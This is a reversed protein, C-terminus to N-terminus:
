DKGSVSRARRAAALCALLRPVGQRRERPLGKGCRARPPAAVPGGCPLSVPAGKSVSHGACARMAPMATEMDGLSSALRALCLQVLPLGPAIRALRHMIRLAQPTRGRPGAQRRPPSGVRDSAPELSAGCRRWLCQPQGPASLVGDGFGAAKLGARRPSAAVLAHLTGARDSALGNKAVM